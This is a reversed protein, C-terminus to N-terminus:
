DAVDEADRASCALYGDPRALAIVDPEFPPRLEPDILADFRARLDTTGPSGDAFLAFRPTAGSGIPAQDAVPVVRQGPQPIGSGRVVPGNLPSHPYGIAVETMSNALAHQVPVLGLMFHGVLNRISQGVPNKLTGVTTLRGAEKLVQDGVESREPSYSDLLRDACTGRIVLALKWALNFADQMGTNMGQGGAPSHIHAADGLLFVRGARYNAVKRGNIRFGALWIPDFAVLGQPGRRDIIAQVQALTPTPPQEAGTAPLDALVRYRGPSIPFIVFAGDQHWYVSAETDPFPYGRMHIDALMWDSNLTEGDFAAGIGHRVVSHAGDCGLLWDFSLEEERGDPHRLVADVCDEQATFATLEVDREVALGSRELREELLRETESQPLMLAYPYPSDVSDMTVRGM